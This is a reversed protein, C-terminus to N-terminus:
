LPVSRVVSFLIGGDLAVRVLTGSAIPGLDLTSTWTGSLTTVESTLESGKAARDVVAVGDVIAVRFADPRPKLEWCGYLTMTVSGDERQSFVVQHLQHEKLVKARRFAYPPPVKYLTITQKVFGQSKARVTLPPGKLWWPYYPAAAILLDLERVAAERDAIVCPLHVLKARQRFSYSVDAGDLAGGSCRSRHRKKDLVAIAALLQRLAAPPILLREM